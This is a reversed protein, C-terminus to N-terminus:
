DAITFSDVFAQLDAKSKNFAAEKRDLEEKKIEGAQYMRKALEYDLKKVQYDQNKLTGRVDGVWNPFGLNQAEWGTNGIKQLEEGTIKGKSKETLLRFSKLAQDVQSIRTEANALSFRNELVNQEPLKSTDIEGSAQPLPQAQPNSFPGMLGRPEGSPGALEKGEVLIKVKKIEEFQTVTNVVSGVAIIEAVSGSFRNFASNFNVVLSDGERTTGLVKAEPSINARHGKDAPGKLLEEIVARYRDEGKLCTVKREETVFKENNSDGYYLKVTETVTEAKDGGPQQKEKGVCGVVAGATLLIIILTTVLRKIIRFM